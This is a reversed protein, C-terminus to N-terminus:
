RSESVGLHQSVDIICNSALNLKDVAIPIDCFDHDETPTPFSSWLYV